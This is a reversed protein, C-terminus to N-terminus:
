ERTLHPPAALYIRTHWAPLTVSRLAAIGKSWLGLPTRGADARRRGEARVPARRCPRPTRLKHTIAGDVLLNSSSRCRLRFLFSIGRPFSGRRPARLVVRLEGRADTIAEDRLHRLGVMRLLRHLQDIALVAATPDNIAVSLTKLAIEALGNVRTAEAVLGAISVAIVNGSMGEHPVVSALGLMAVIFLELQNFKSELHTRVRLAIFATRRPRTLNRNSRLYAM